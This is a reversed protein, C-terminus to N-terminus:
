MEVSDVDFNKKPHSIWTVYSTYVFSLIEIIQFISSSAQLVSLSLRQDVVRKEKKRKREEKAKKQMM